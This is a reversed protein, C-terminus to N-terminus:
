YLLCRNSCCAVLFALICVVRREQGSHEKRLVHRLDSACWGVLSVLLFPELRHTFETAIICHRIRFMKWHLPGQEIWRLWCTVDIEFCLFIFQKLIDCTDELQRERM